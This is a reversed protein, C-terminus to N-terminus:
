LILMTGNISTSGPVDSRKWPAILRGPRPALTNDYQMWGIDNKGEVYAGSFVRTNNMGRKQLIDFYARYDFDPNILAGYHEGSTILIVPKNRYVLYHHNDPCFGLVQQAYVSGSYVAALLLALYALNRTM